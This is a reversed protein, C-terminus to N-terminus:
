AGFVASAIVSSVVGLVLAVIVGWVLRERNRRWRTDRTLGDGILFATHHTPWTLNLAALTLAYALLTGGLTVYGSLGASEAEDPYEPAARNDEALQELDLAWRELLLNLRDDTTGSTILEDVQARFTEADEQNRESRGERWAEYESDYRSVAANYEDAQVDTAWVSYIFSGIFFALAAFAAIRRHRAKFPSVSAKM